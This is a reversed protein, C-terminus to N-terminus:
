KNGDGEKNWCCWLLLYHCMANTKKKEFMFFVFCVCFVVFFFWSFPPLKSELEWKAKESKAGVEVRRNRVNKGPMKKELLLFSFFPFFVFWLSSFFTSFPPFKGELEWEVKECETRAKARGSRGKQKM